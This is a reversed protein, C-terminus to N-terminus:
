SMQELRIGTTNLCWRSKRYPNLLRILELDTVVTRRGFKVFEILGQKNMAYLQSRSIGLRYAAEPVPYALRESM